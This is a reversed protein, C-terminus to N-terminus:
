EFFMSEWWDSHYYRRKLSHSNRTSVVVDGERLIEDCRACLMQHMIILVHKEM